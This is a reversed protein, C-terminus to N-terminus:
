KLKDGSLERLKNLKQYPTGNHLIIVEVKKIFEKIDKKPYVQRVYGEDTYIRECELEKDSLTKEKNM